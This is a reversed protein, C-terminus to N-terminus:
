EKERLYANLAQIATRLNARLIKYQQSVKELETAEEYSLPTPLKSIHELLSVRGGLTDLLDQYFDKTVINGRERELSILLERVESLVGGIVAIVVQWDQTIEQTIRNSMPPANPRAFFKLSNVFSDLRDVPAGNILASFRQLKGSIKLLRGKVIRASAADWGQTGLKTLHAVSDGLKSIASAAEGVAKAINAIDIVAAKASGIPFTNALTTVGVILTRRSVRKDSGNVDM